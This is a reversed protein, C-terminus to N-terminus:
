ALVTRSSRKATQPQPLVRIYYILQVTYKSGGPLKGDQADYGMLVGEDSFLEMESIETANIEGGSCLVASGTVVEIRIPESARLTIGRYLSHESDMNDASIEAWLTGVDNRIMQQPLSNRVRVNEAVTDVADNTVTVNVIYCKGVELNAVDTYTIGSQQDILGIFNEENGVIPNDSAQNFVPGAAEVGHALSIWIVLTLALFRFYKRKQM